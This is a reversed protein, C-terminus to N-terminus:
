LCVTIYIGKDRAVYFLAHGFTPRVFGIKVNSQTQAENSHVGVCAVIAQAIVISTGHM